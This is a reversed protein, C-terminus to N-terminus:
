KITINIYGTINNQKTTKVDLTEQKRLNTVILNYNEKFYLYDLLTGATHGYGQDTAIKKINQYTKMNNKVPQDQTYIVDTNHKFFLPLLRNVVQFTIKLNKQYM